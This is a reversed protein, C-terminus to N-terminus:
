CEKGVRREESRRRCGGDRHFRRWGPQRDPVGYRYESSEAAVGGAGGARAQAARERQHWAKRAASGQARGATEARRRQGLVRIGNRRLGAEKQDRLCGATHGARSGSLSGRGNPRYDIMARLLYWLLAGAYREEGASM